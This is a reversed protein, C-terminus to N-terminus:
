FIFCHAWFQAELCGSAQGGISRERIEEEKGKQERCTFFNRKRYEKKSSCFFKHIDYESYTHYPIQKCTVKTEPEGERIHTSLQKNGDSCLLAVDCQWSGYANLPLTL